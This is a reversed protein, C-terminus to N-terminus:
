NAEGGAQYRRRKPERMHLSELIHKTVQLCRVNKLLQEGSRGIREGHVSDVDVKHWMMTLEIWM